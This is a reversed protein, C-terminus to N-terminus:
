RQVERVSAKPILMMSAAEAPRNITLVLTPPTGSTSGLSIISNAEGFEDPLTGRKWSLILDLIAQSVPQQVSTTRANDIATSVILDPICSGRRACWRNCPIYVQALTASRVSRTYSLAIALGSRSRNSLIDLHAPECSSTWRQVVLPQCRFRHAVM